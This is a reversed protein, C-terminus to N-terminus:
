LQSNKMGMTKKLTKKWIEDYDTVFFAEFTSAIYM